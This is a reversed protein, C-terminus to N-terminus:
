RGVGMEQLVLRLAALAYHLRSKVTGLPCDLAAAIEDLAAGAFFRLEIVMRHEEPLSAVAQRVRQADETAEASRAEPSPCRNM